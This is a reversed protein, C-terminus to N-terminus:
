YLAFKKVRKASGVKEMLLQATVYKFVDVLSQYDYTVVETVPTGKDNVTEYRFKGTEPIVMDSAFKANLEKMTVSTLPCGTAFKVYKLVKKLQWQKLNCDTAMAAVADADMRDSMVLGKIKGCETYLEEHRPALYSLVRKVGADLDGGGVVTCFEKVYPKKKQYREFARTDKHLKPVPICTYEANWNYMDFTCVPSEESTARKIQEQAVMNQLTKLQSDSMSTLDINALSPSTSHQQSNNYPPEADHLNISETAPPNENPSSLLVDSDSAVVSNNQQM